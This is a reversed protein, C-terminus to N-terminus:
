SRKPARIRFLEEAGFYVLVAAYDKHGAILRAGAAMAEADSNCLVPEFTSGPAADPTIEFSRAVEKM